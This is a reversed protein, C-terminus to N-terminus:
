CTRLVEQKNCGTTKKKVEGHAYVGVRLSARVYMKTLPHANTSTHERSNM